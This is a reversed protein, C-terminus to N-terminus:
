AVLYWTGALVVLGMAISGFIMLGFAAHPRTRSIIEALVIAMTTMVVKFIALGGFGFRILISKGLVNVEDAGVYNIALRTIILDMINLAVFLLYLRPHHIELHLTRPGVTTHGSERLRESLEQAQRAEDEAPSQQPNQQSQDTQSGDREVHPDEQQPPMKRPAEMDGNPESM